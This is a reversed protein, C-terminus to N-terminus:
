TGGEFSCEAKSAEKLAFDNRDNEKRKKKRKDWTRQKLKYPRDSKVKTITLFV